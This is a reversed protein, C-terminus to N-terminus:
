ASEYTPTSGLWLKMGRKAAEQVAFKMQAVHEPSLYKPEGRGPSLNAVFVGHAALQDLDAVM